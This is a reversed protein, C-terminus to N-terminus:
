IKELKEPKERRLEFEQRQYQLVRIHKKKEGKVKKKIGHLYLSNEGKVVRVLKM